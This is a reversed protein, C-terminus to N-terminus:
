LTRPKLRSYRMSMQIVTGNILKAQEVLRSREGIRDVIVFTGCYYRPKGVELQREFRSVKDRSIEPNGRGIFGIDFRVAQGPSCLATADSERSGLRDTLWFVRNTRKPPFTVHKFGLIQLV